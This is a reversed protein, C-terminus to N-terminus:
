CLRKAPRGTNAPAAPCCYLSPAPGCCRGTKINFVHCSICRSCPPLSLALVSHLSPRFLSHTQLNARETRTHTHATTLLVLFTNTHTITPQTSCALTQLDDYRLAGVSAFVSGSLLVRPWIHGPVAPLLSNNNDCIIRHKWLM